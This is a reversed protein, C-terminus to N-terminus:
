NIVTLTFAATHVEGEHKFQLFLRYGGESPFETEFAVPLVPEGHGAHGGGHTHGGADGAPHTHLYALDGARLAVLHGNAGLYDQVAVPLGDRTIHFLLQVPQGAAMSGAALHVEYGTDTVAIAAPAPLPQEDATGSVTLDRALTQSRGDYKFDAFVRYDGPEAIRVPVTWTGDRAMRPHLHQFGTLDRRVLILHLRKAHEV